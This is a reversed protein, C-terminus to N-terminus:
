LDSAVLDPLYQTGPLDQAVRLVCLVPLILYTKQALTPFIGFCNGSGGGTAYGSCIYTIKCVGM